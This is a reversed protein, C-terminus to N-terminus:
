GATVRNRRRADAESVFQELEVGYRVRLEEVSPKLREADQSGLYRPVYRWCLPAIDQTWPKGVNLSHDRLITNLRESSRRASIHEFAWARPSYTSSSELMEALSLHLKGRSTVEGTKNNIYTRAGIHADRMMVVPTDAFFAETVAVCSGERKSLIASVKADCQYAMVEDIELGSLVTLDQPVGFARAQRLIDRKMCGPSERGILVVNLNKPMRRLAEFLLWHRKLRQFHAVMLIDVRRQERPRPRYFEPDCWDCAMIPIPQIYPSFTGYQPIDSKNSIGIFIPDDSLGCLNAFVAYDSPSSSSAGVLVYDEFFKKRERAGLLKMWNYEFSVYLVGKEGCCRPEKLLLATKLKPERSVGADAPYYRRWGIREDRWVEVSELQLWKRLGWQTLALGAGAEFRRLAVIRLQLRVHRQLSAISAALLLWGYAASFAHSHLVTRLEM